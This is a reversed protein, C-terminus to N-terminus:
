VVVSNGPRHPDFRIVVRAGPAYDIPRRRQEADLLQSSEYEVGNVIYSFYIQRIEGADDTGTDLISGETIRGALLLRSRRSEEADVKKSRFRDLFPM